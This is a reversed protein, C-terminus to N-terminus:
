GNPGTFKTGKTACGKGRVVVGGSKYAREIPMQTIKSRANAPMAAPMKSMAPRALGGAQMAKCHTVKVPKMKAM